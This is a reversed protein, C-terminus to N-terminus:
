WRGRAGVNVRVARTVDAASAGEYEVSIPVTNVGGNLLVPAFATALPLANVYAGETGMVAGAPPELDVRLAEGPGLALGSFQIADGVGVATVTGSGLNEVQLKLPAPQGTNVEIEISGVATGSGFERSEEDKEVNYAFPQATWKVQLEGGFWNRLSWKSQATLEALYFVGPEYDFILRQRGSTLWAAWRRILAQAEQQTRPEAAPYLTGEFVFPQWAEGDMLLTGSMGAITYSNRRIEPIAIHGDKEAYMLGMDRRSHLGGFTFGSERLLM